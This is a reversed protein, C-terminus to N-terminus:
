NKIQQMSADPHSSVYHIDILSHKIKRVERNEELTAIVKRYFIVKKQLRNFRGSWNKLDM